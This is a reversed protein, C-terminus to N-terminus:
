FLSISFKLNDMTGLIKIDGALFVSRKFTMNKVQIDDWTEAEIKGTGVWAQRQAEVDVDARNDYKDDLIDVGDLSLSDFYSNVASIFLVQYDYKNKNTGQYETKFVERIDDQILDMAEVTDIYKMDETNNIGDVTTMANIGLAIRVEDIDNILILKGGSVAQENDEVETVRELNSCKFNTCGKKINCSAFIGILSPCYKEGPQEGREDAFIVKDNYFNVVHKCDPSPVKYVVAKYTKRALEMGKVWSSLLVYDEAAGDAITVWGTTCNKEVIKFAEALDGGVTDVRVVIVRNTAWNFIDKLCQLNKETFKDRDSLVGTISKYTRFVFSKDTDDKVILIAIGRASREILTGALQKFNIEIKPLTIAM